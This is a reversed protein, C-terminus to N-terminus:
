FNLVETFLVSEGKHIFLTRVEYIEYIKIYSGPTSNEASDIGVNDGFIFVFFSFFRMQVM